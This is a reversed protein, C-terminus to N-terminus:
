KKGDPGGRGKASRLEALRPSLSLGTVCPHLEICQCRQLRTLLELLKRMQAMRRETEAIKRATLQKWRASVPTGKAFGHLFVRIEELSFDMESAFRILLVRDLAEASYRRQGSARQPAALLGIREYYRIASASLGARAALEGIKM